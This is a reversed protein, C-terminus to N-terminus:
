SLTEDGRSLRRANAQLTERGPAVFAEFSDELPSADFPMKWPTMLLTMWYDNVAQAGALAAEAKETVMRQTEERSAPTPNQMDSALIPLRAAVVVGATWIDLWLNQM